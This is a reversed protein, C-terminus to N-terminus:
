KILIFQLQLYFQVHHLVLFDSRQEKKEKLCLFRHYERPSLGLTANDCIIQTMMSSEDCKNPVGHVM